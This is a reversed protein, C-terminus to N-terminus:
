GGTALVGSLGSHQRLVVNHLLLDRAHQQLAQYHIPRVWPPQEDGENLEDLVRSVVEPAQLERVACRLNLAQEVAHSGTAHGRRGSPLPLVPLRLLLLHVHGLGNACLILRAPGNFHMGQKLCRDIHELWVAAEHM